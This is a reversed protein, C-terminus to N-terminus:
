EAVCLFRPRARLTLSPVHCTLRRLLRSFNSEGAETTHDDHGHLNAANSELRRLPAQPTETDIEDPKQRTQRQDPGQEVEHKAHVERDGGVVGKAFTAEQQALLRHQCDDRM